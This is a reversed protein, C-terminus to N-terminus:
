RVPVSPLAGQADSFDARAANAFSLSSISTAAVMVGLLCSVGVGALMRVGVWARSEEPAVTPWLCVVSGLILVICGIWIWAVLPNVHIQFTAINNHDPSITGVVVYIDERFGHSIAVESTPAEPQKRYIFKAPTLRGVVRSGDLVDIDAFIMRKNDDAEMRPGLYRLTHGQLTVSEGPNLSVEREANWSLGAFGFFMLVIGFHVVYGGYRRRSPAPLSLLDFYLAWRRQTQGRPMEERLRKSRARFLLVFEQVVIAANFACLTFGLVPTVANFWQLAPGLVGSYIPPNVVVAPFGLRRGFTAHAVLATVAVVVPAFFVRRLAAKSTRKWGFLTGLGMLLLLILGLPQAWTKYFPPGITVSEGDLAESMLPFTTAVLIFFLLSCLIWNNLLFTFERSWPSEILPRSSRLELRATLRRFVIELAVFVGLGCVSAIIAVRWGVPLGLRWMAFSGPGCIGFIMWGTAVAAWRLRRSPKVDRLEPWRWLALTTTFVLLIVLFVAFYSGISSQAFSHVSSVVGSRTLFTGFITLFFTLCILFVNWVKLLGRREQLMVSHVFATASLFPMFAANEVPDWGWYGGWGLEEYAWVMGLTNGIALFLWAFLTWTRSAILWEHDLRGTVLAAIAFAFPVSCGVFGAYLCPPHIVMWYNQLLPNLGDGDARMGSFNVAFPNASFIMVVCFFIVIAMLTAIVYPQLEQYRTGLWRVCVGIYVSLLFLWWLLSGDQGGWLATLLYHIPMSRDSYHAVYRIRFDHSLFAYALCLLTVGILAVTSYAGLRASSLTRQLGNAGAVLSIALSYSAVVMTALLLSTGFAPLTTGFIDVFTEM